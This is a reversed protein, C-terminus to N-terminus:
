CVKNEEKSMVKGGFVMREEFFGNLVKKRQLGGIGKRGGQIEVLLEGEYEVVFYFDNFLFESM